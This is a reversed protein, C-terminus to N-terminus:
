SQEESSMPSIMLRRDAGEGQSHTELDAEDCLITHVLRREAGSLPPMQYEEKSERVKSAAEAALASLETYRQARFTGLEVTYAEREEDSRGMNITSNLLYQMADLAAMDRATFVQVQESSLVEADITLWTGSSELLQPNTIDPPDVSITAELGCRLLLESLWQKGQNDESM